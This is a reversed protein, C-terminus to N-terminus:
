NDPRPLRRMRTRTTATAETAGSRPTHAVRPAVTSPTPSLPEYYAWRRGGIQTLDGGGELSRLIEAAEGIAVGLLDRVTKNDVRGFNRAHQLVIGRQYGRALGRERTYTAEAGLMAQTRANLAYRTGPGSGFRDVLDGLLEAILDQAEEESRQMTLALTQRDAPGMRRLYSIVMLREVTWTRGREQENLVFRAFPEDFKSANLHLRVAAPDATYKPPLKGYRLQDEFIRDVGLGSREMYRVRDLIECLRRNRHVPAHQIVTDPTIGEPFGGPNEIEVFAPTQKIVVDGPLTLHRHALANVIAERIVREPYDPVEIDRVGLRMTRQGSSAQVDKQLKEILPLLPLSSTERREYESGGATTRIYMVEHQPIMQRITTPLGFVLVGALTVWDRGQHAELAGIALLLERDVLGPLGGNGEASPLQRRFREIELPDLGDLPVPTLAASLDLTHTDVQRVILRDPTMPVCEVGLRQRYHGDATSVIRDSHSVWVGIVRQGDVALAQVDVLQGPATASYVTNRLRDAHKWETGEIRGDKDIGWLVLGGQGNAFCVVAEAIDAAAANRGKFEVNSREGAKALKRV